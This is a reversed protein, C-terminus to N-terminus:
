PAPDLVAAILEVPHLVAIDLGAERVGAALHLACGPNTTVIVDPTDLRVPALLDALLAEAMVPHQLLYTGAAGCCGQGPPMPAVALGPIRGLLRYVAANGGLQNRHSCPEHVLVRRRDPRMRLSEPWELGDLFACLERTDCLAPDGRLEAVCASALGVLPRNGHIRVCAERQADAQEPWGNHRLMAGCCTDPSVIRLRLNLRAAVKLTAEVARGEAASGMCGLFLDGDSEGPGEPNHPAIPRAVAGMATAIRHYPRLAPIRDLRMLETLRALGLRRYLRSLWAFRGMLRASSLVGLALRNVSRRPAPLAAIRLAKAQDAIHGYAVESPCVRQCNLCGLCGDLHAALTPTMALDGGAWGQILAIRGRPSDAEQRALQFTPCHPLCLGCKVCQDALQLLERTADAQPLSRPDGTSIKM